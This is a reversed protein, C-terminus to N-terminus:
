DLLDFIYRDPAFDRRFHWRRLFKNRLFRTNHNRKDIIVYASQRLLSEYLLLDTTLPRRRNKYSPSSPTTTLGHVSGKVTESDPGDLYVLDPVVDPLQKFLHDVCAQSQM